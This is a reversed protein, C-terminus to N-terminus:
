ARAVLIALIVFASVAVLAHIVVVLSPLPKGRLHFSFLVFGGLAAVIFLVLSIRALEGGAALGMGLAIIGAAGAAGHILAVPLPLSKGTFHRIALYLGGLAAAAFILLAYLM